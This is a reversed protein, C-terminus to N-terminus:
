EEDDCMRALEIVGTLATFIYYLIWYWYPAEILLGIVAFMVISMM